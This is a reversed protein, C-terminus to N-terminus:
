VTRDNQVGKSKTTRRFEHARGNVYTELLKIADAVPGNCGKEALGKLCALVGTMLLEREELSDETDDDMEERWHELCHVRKDIKRVATIYTIAGGVVASVLITVVTKLIDELM